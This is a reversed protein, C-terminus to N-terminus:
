FPHEQALLTGQAASMMGPLSLLASHHPGGRWFPCHPYMNYFYQLVDQLIFLTTHPASIVALLLAWHLNHCQAFSDRLVRYMPAQEEQAGMKGCSSYIQIPMALFETGPVAMCFTLKNASFASMKSSSHDARDQGMESSVGPEM